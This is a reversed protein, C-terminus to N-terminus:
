PLTFSAGRLRARRAAEANASTIEREAPGQRIAAAADLIADGLTRPRPSTIRRGEVPEREEMCEVRHRRGRRALVITARHRCQSRAPESFFADGFARELADRERLELRRESATWFLTFTGNFPDQNHESAVHEVLARDSDAHLMSWGLEGRDQVVTLTWPEPPRPSVQCGAM